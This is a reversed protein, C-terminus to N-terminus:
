KEERFDGPVPTPVPERPFCRKCGAPLTWLWPRVSASMPSCPSSYACSIHILSLYDGYQEQLQLCAIPRNEEDMNTAPGWTIAEGSLQAVVPFNSGMAPEAYPYPDGSEWEPEEPESEPEPESSSVSVPEQETESSSSREEGRDTTCATLGVTLVLALLISIWRNKM